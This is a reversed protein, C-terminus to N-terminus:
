GAETASVDEMLTLVADLNAVVEDPRFHRAVLGGSNVAEGGPLEMVKSLYVDLVPKMVSTGASSPLYGLVLDRLGLWGVVGPPNFWAISAHARSEPNPIRISIGTQGWYVILGAGEATDILREIAGRYEDDGIQDLLQDRTLAAGRHGDRRPGEPTPKLITRAEFVDSGGHAFRVVEVLYFSGQAQHTNLYTATREMPATFRQAAVVLIFGGDNLSTTLRDKFIAQDEDNLPPDTWVKSSAEALSKCGEVKTGKAYPGDFYRVAVKREFEEYDMQWIDSGYDLVQALAARFDPNKPGTKFEVLVLEGGRALLALDIDGSPLTTERGVVLPPGQLGFDEIPLLEPNAKIIEQLQAEDHALSESFIKAGDASGVLVRRPM